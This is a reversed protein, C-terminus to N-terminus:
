IRRQFKLQIIPAQQAYQQACAQMITRYAHLAEQDNLESTISDLGQCNLPNSEGTGRLDVFLLDRNQRVSAFYRHLSYAM